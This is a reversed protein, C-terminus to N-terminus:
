YGAAPGRLPGTTVSPATGRGQRRHNTPVKAVITQTRLTLRHQRLTVGTTQRDSLLGAAASIVLPARALEPGPWPAM